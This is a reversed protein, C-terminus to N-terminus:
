YKDDTDMMDSMDLSTDQGMMDMDMSGTIRGAGERLKFRSVINSMMQAQSSMEESAAASQESTASNSQVVTSVQQVGGNIEEISTAQAKSMESIKGMSDATKEAIEAVRQLSEYTEASIANGETVKEISREILATTEKAAEASKAALNRVEDAVVAFGKGAEGARAAEVAANLALINTQFAIDDIVKIVKSIDTSSNNIEEMAATMKSMSVMGENMYEGAQQVDRLGIDAQQTTAEAHTLTESISASIEQISAAQETSGSALTQAGQAVQAAGAAVQDASNKIESVMRNNSDVMDNIAKNMVDKDSRVPISVTYDGQSIIELISAQEKIAVVMQRFASGLEGLEDKSNHKVEIDTDGLAISDAAAKLEVIPDKISKLLLRAAIVTIVVAAALIILFLMMSSSALATNATSEDLGQAVALDMLGDLTDTMKDGVANCEDLLATLNSTDGAAVDALIQEAVPLLENTYESKVSEYLATEEEGEVYPDYEAMASETLQKYEAVKALSNEYQESGTEYIVANRVQLRLEGLDDVIEAIIPLPVATNNYSESYSSDVDNLSLISFVGLVATLILIIAFTLFLKKSVKMDNLKKL